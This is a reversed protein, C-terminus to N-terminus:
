EEAMPTDYLAAQSDTASQPRPMVLHTALTPTM